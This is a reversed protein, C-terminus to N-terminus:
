AAMRKSRSIQQELARGFSALQRILANYRSHAENGHQSALMRYLKRDSDLADAASVAVIIGCRALRPSGIQVLLGAITERRAAVDALGQQILDAGPLGTLSDPATM